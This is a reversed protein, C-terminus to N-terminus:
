NSESEHQRKLRQQLYQALGESLTTLGDSTCIRYSPMREYTEAAIKGEDVRVSAIIDDPDGIRGLAPVNRMDNIHMWGEGRQTAEAIITEDAGETLAKKISEHMLDLFKKNEHFDGLGAGEVAPV